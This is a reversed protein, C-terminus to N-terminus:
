TPSRRFFLKNTYHKMWGKLMNRLPKSISYNWRLSTFVIVVALGAVALFPSKQPTPFGHSEVFVHAYNCLWRDPTKGLTKKLMDNIEKHVAVRQNMTKTEQYFRSGALVIPIHAVSAGRVALRVWYEYDMCYHLKEDLLGYTEIVKRRFFVAPQSLFCISKLREFDWPETPYAEIVCDDKDIHNARGYVLDISPNEQFFRRVSEFTGSYYIDDSNLWGIIDGTVRKLGKNVADTQGNDKESIWSLHQEYKKLIETTNDTSVGDFVFYELPAVSQSLVSQLTREIFQGQNYSPTVISFTLEFASDASMM